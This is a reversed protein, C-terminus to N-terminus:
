GALRELFAEADTAPAHPLRYRHALATALRRALDARIGPEMGERRVLFDRVLTADASSLTFGGPEDAAAVPTLTPLTRQRGERVVLTGGAFDGLRRSRANLLMVMAGIGYAFPLWDVIRVLNRVVSDVPRIPYGSDRIVRLGLLRKGPTQGNWVIEFVMFYGTTIAFSAAVWLGLVLLGSGGAIGEPFDGFAASAGGLAATVVSLAVLQALTDVLVAGGRSGIGAIAYELRVREPTVLTYDASAM